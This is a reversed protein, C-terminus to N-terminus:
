KCASHCLCLLPPSRTLPRNKLCGVHQCCSGRVRNGRNTKHAAEQEGCCAAGASLVALSEREGHAHTHTFNGQVGGQLSIIM